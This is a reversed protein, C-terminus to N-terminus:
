ARALPPVYRYAPGALYRLREAYFADIQRRAKPRLELFQFGMLCSAAATTAVHLLRVCASLTQHGEALPLVMTAQLLPQNDGKLRGGAPHIIQATAMNCAIQLGEPSLNRLTAACHQGQGNRFAVPFDGLIRPYARQDEFDNQPAFWAGTEQGATFGTIQSFVSSM